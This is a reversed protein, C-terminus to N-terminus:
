NLKAKIDSITKKVSAAATGAAEAILPKVVAQVEKPAAEVGKITAKLSTEKQAKRWQDYILYGGAALGVLVVVLMVAPYTEVLFGGIGFAASLAFMSFALGRMGFYLLVAGLVGTIGCFIYLLYSNTKKASAFQWSFSGGNSISDGLTVSPLDGMYAAAGGKETTAVGIGKSENAQTLTRAGTPATVDESGEVIIRSGADATIEHGNIRVTQQPKAASTASSTSVGETTPRSRAQTSGMWFGIALVLMTLLSAVAVVMTGSWASQPQHSLRSEGLEPQTDTM